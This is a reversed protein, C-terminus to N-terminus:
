MYNILHHDLLAIGGGYGGGGNATISGHKEVVVSRAGVLEL